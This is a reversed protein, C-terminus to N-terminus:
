NAAIHRAYDTDTEALYEADLVTYHLEETLTATTGSM